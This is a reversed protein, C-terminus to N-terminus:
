AKEGDVTFEYEHKTIKEDVYANSLQYDHKEALNAEIDELVGLSRYWDRAREQAKRSLEDFFYLTRTHPMADAEKAILECHDPNPNDGEGKLQQLTRLVADGITGIPEGLRQQQALAPMDHRVVPELWQVLLTLILSRM